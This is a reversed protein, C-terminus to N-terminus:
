IVENFYQPKVSYVLDGSRVGLRIENRQIKELVKLANLYEVQINEPVDKVAKQAWLAYKVMSLCVSQLLKSPETLPLSYVGQLYDDIVGSANEMFTSLTEDSVNRLVPNDASLATKIDEVTLYM